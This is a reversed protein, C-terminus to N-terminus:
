EPFIPRVRKKKWRFALKLAFAGAVRKRGGACRTPFSRTPADFGAAKRPFLRFSLFASGQAIGWCQTDEHNLEATRRASGRSFNSAFAFDRNVTEGTVWEGFSNAM